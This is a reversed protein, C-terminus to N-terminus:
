RRAVWWCVQYQLGVATGFLPEVAELVEAHTTWFPVEYHPLPLAVLTGAGLTSCEDLPPSAGLTSCEDVLTSAGLVSPQVSMHCIM